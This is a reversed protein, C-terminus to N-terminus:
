AEIKFNSIIGLSIFKNLLAGIDCEKKTQRFIEKYINFLKKRGVNALFIFEEKTLNHIEVKHHARELLAFEPHKLSIKKRGSNKMNDMWISFIPFESAMLFCSPHLELKLNPFNQPTIKKFKEVDFIKSDQCYYAKHYLLELTAVDPLFALKHKAKLKNLFQPFADGYNDLNGSKSFHKQNYEDCLQAFYKEGVLKQVVEFISALVSNFNGFVNNRYINLRELAEQKSYPLAAIIKEDNKKYLHKEFNRQLKLIDSM